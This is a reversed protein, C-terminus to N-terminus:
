ASAREAPHRRYINIQWAVTRASQALEFGGDVIRQGMRRWDHLFPHFGGGFLKTCGIVIRIVLRSIRTDRPFSMALLRHTKAMSVDVIADVNEYCCVVKDLVALDADPLDAALAVFDGVRYDVRDTLGVREAQRRAEQLMPEAVDVGTAHGVGKSLLSLHVPGVGCGVDLVDGRAGGEREVLGILARQAADPGKREFSRGYKAAEKGFFRRTADLDPGGCCSGGCHAM